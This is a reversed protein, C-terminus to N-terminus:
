DAQGTLATVLVCARFKCRNMAKGYNGPTQVVFLAWSGDLFSVIMNSFVRYILPRSRFSSTSGSSDSALTSRLWSSSVPVFTPQLWPCHPQQLTIRSPRTTREQM